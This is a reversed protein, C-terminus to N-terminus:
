KDGTHGFGGSGRETADLKDCFIFDPTEHAVIVLQAIKTGAIVTRTESSDNHLPVMIEGRYDSDIVGVCNAPRLGYATAMGSRAFVLGVYGSPIAMAIGTHAKVTEGPLLKLMPDTVFLDYGAACASGRAPTKAAIDTKKFKVIM